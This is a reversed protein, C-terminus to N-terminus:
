WVEQSNGLVGEGRAMRCCGEQSSGLVGAGRALRCCGEQSIVWYGKLLSSRTTSRSTCMYLMVLYQLCAVFESICIVQVDMLEEVRKSAQGKVVLSGRSSGKEVVRTGESYVGTGRSIVASSSFANADECIM